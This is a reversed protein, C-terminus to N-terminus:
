GDNFMRFLNFVRNRDSDDIVKSDKNEYGGDKKIDLIEVLNYQLNYLRDTINIVTQYIFEIDDTFLCCVSLSLVFNDLAPEIKHAPM